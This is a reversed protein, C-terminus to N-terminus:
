PAYGASCPIGEANMGQPVQQRPLNAFKEPQYRFMYLHYANRTCGEYEAGSRHGPIERLLSTLYAANESRTKARQEAGEM